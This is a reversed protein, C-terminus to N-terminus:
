NEAANERTAESDNKEAAAKKEAAAAAGEKAAAEKEAAAAAAAAAAASDSTIEPETSPPTTDYESKGRLGTRKGRYKRSPSSYPKSPEQGYLDGNAVAAEKIAALM